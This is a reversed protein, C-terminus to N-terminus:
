FALDTYAEGKRLYALVLLPQESANLRRGDLATNVVNM